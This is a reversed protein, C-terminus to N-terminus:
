LKVVTSTHSVRHAPLGDLLLEATPMQRTGLKDKLRQVEIGKLRGDEGRSVEAYFLSLGRSGQPPLCTCLCYQSIMNCLLLKNWRIVTLSTLLVPTIAGTRDQVRALTLTMDADTASTFWKFGHLKYSGDTQPVAVTETGSASFFCPSFPHVGIILKTSCLSVSFTTSTSLSSCSWQGVDSGGQRETMWQGSTWFREPQRTTLRNYAEDTYAEDVGLTKVYVTVVDSSTGVLNHSPHIFFQM